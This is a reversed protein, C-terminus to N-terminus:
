AGALSMAQRRSVASCVREVIDAKTWDALEAGVLNPAKGKGDPAPRALWISARSWRALCARPTHCEGCHGPRRRSLPWPEPQASQNAEVSPQFQRFVVAEMLWPSRRISFPFRWGTRRRAAQVAPLTRLFAMLIPSM